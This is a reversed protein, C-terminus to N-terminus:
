QRGAETAETRSPTGGTGANTDEVQLRQKRISDLLAGFQKTPDEPARELSGCLSDYTQMVARHAAIRDSNKATVDDIIRAMTQIGRVMTGSVMHALEQRLLDQFTKTNLIERVQELTLGTADAISPVSFGTEQDAIAAIVCKATLLLESAEQDVDVLRPLM